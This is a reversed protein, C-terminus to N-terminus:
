GAAQAELFLGFAYMPQKRYCIRGAAEFHWATQDRRMAAPIDTWDRHKWYARAKYEAMLAAQRTMAQPHQRYHCTRRGTYAFKLGSRLCRFWLEADECYRIKPDFLGINELSKKKLVVASPQFFSRQYLSVALNSLEKETPERYEIVKDTESDFMFAGAYIVDANERAATEM